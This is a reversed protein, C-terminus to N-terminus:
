PSFYRRCLEIQDEERFTDNKSLNEEATLIQLNIMLHEGGKSLPQIHDVHHEVGTTETLYQAELYLEQIAKREKPPLLVESFVSWTAKRDVEHWENDLFVYEPTNTRQLRRSANKARNAVKGHDFDKVYRRNNACGRERNDSYWQASRQRNKKAQAPDLWMRITEVSRGLQRGVERYNGCLRYLEAARAKEEPTARHNRRIGALSSTHGAKCQKCQCGTNLKLINNAPSQYEGHKSCVFVYRTKNTVWKQGEKVVVHPYLLNVYTSFTEMSWLVGNGKRPLSARYEEATITPVLVQNM